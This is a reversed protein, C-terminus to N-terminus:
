SSPQHMLEVIRIALQNEVILTEGRGFLQNNVFLKVLEDPHQDMIFRDGPELQLLKNLPIRIAGLEATVEFELDLIMDLSGLSTHTSTPTSIPQPTLEPTIPPLGAPVASDIVAPTVATARSRPQTSPIYQDQGITEVEALLDDLNM